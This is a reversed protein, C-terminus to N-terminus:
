YKCMQMFVLLTDARRSEPRQIFQEEHTALHLLQM